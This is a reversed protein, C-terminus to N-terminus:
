SILNQVDNEPLPEDLTTGGEHEEPLITNNSWIELFLDFFEKVLDVTLSVSHMKNLMAARVRTVLAGMSFSEM